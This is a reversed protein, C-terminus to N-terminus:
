RIAGVTALAYSAGHTAGAICLRVNPSRVSIIITADHLYDATQPVGTMIELIAPLWRTAEGAPRGFESPVYVLQPVAAESQAEARQAARRDGITM